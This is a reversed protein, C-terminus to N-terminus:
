EFMTDLDDPLVTTDIVDGSVEDVIEIKVSYNEPDKGDLLQYFSSSMGIGFAAFGDFSNEFADQDVEITFESYDDNATINKISVFDDSEVMEELSNEIEVTLEDLWEKHASKTMKFTVSGDDNLKVEEVGMEEVEAEVAELMDIEIGEGVITVPLTVEVHDSSSDGCAVIFGITFLVLLVKFIKKM